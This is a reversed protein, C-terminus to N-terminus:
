QVTVGETGEPLGVIPCGLWHEGTMGCADCTGLACACGRCIGLEARGHRRITVVVCAPADGPDPTVEPSGEPCANCHAVFRDGTKATARRHARNM